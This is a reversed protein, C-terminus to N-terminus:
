LFQGETSKAYDPHTAGAFSFSTIMSAPIVAGGHQSPVRLIGGEMSAGPVIPDKSFTNCGRGFWVAKGDTVTVCVQGGEAGVDNLRKVLENLADENM